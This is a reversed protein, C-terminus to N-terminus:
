SWRGCTRRDKRWFTRRRGVAGRFRSENEEGDVGGIVDVALGVAVRGELQVVLEAGDAAVDFPDRFIAALRELERGARGDGDVLLRDRAAGHLVALGDVVRD